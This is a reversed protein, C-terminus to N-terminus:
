KSEKKAAKHVANIYLIVHEKNVHRVNFGMGSLLPYDKFLNSEKGDYTKVTYRMGCAFALNHNNTYAKRLNDGDALAKKLEGFRKDKIRDTDLRKLFDRIHSDVGFTKKAEESLLSPGDVVVKSQAYKIFETVKPNERQFKPLRNMPMVIVTAKSDLYGLIASPSKDKASHVSIWYVETNAPIQQESKFGNRTYIDWSGKIRGGTGANWAAGAVKPKKPLAAKLDEWTVKAYDEVWPCDIKSDPTFIVRNYSVDGDPNADNQIEIWKKVRQKVSSSATVTCETIVLTEKMLEVAYGYSNIKNTTNRYGRVKWEYGNVPFNKTFVLDGFKLNGFMSGLADTWESWAKYAEPATKAADIEKQAQTMLNKEFDKIIGHLTTKTLDSYILDERSPTFEVDANDVYAVFNVHALATNRFLASPNNIRYAVNGMVVYSTNWEMGNTHYLGEAIKKGVNHKPAVGNVLVTGPLWFKFFDKAKQAFEAPNHVPVNILVGSPEDSKEEAVVDLVIASEATRQIVAVTKIGNHISTVTFQNTYAAAVKSGYGLLGNFSNSKRKTSVGFTTFIKALTRRDMGNAFDRVSYFPHMVSPLTVEIPRKIGHRVHEDHANTAYERATATSLDSYLRALSNMIFRQDEPNDSISFEVRELSPLSSETTLTNAPPILSNGKTPTHTV